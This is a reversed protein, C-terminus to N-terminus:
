QMIMELRKKISNDIEKDGIKIKVGGILKKDETFKIETEGFVKTLEQITFNKLNSSFPEASTIIIQKAERENKIALFFSLQKKEALLALFNKIEKALFDGFWENLLRTRKNNTECLELAQRKQLTLFKEALKLHELALLFNEDGVNERLAQLYPNAM